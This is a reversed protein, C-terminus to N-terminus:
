CTEDKRLIRKNKCGNILYCFWFYCMLMYNNNLNDDLVRIENDAGNHSLFWERCLRDFKNLPRNCYNIIHDRNNAINLFFKRRFLPVNGCKM